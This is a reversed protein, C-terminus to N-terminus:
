TKESRPKQEINWTKEVMYTPRRKVEEFIRGIYEAVIGLAILQAGGLFLISLVLSTWGKAHRPNYGLVTWDAVYQFFVFLALALAFGAVALGALSILRLPRSSFSVLGNMALNILMRLTYKPEGAERAHREYPIGTQRLGIWSRLGRIFRQKEPLSALADVARRSMVCFDGTDLPIEIDSLVALIRYFLFYALRKLFWEKRRTRIGYVIDYGERLKDFFRPLEEPPDQLDADIVAVIDGQCADLGATVARQHGFNRSLAVVKLRQDQKALDVAIQLSDDSSGDDILVFECPTDWADACRALREYLLKIGNGENYSPVVISIM